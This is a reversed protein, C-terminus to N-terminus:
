RGKLLTWSNDGMVYHDVCTIYLVVLLASVTLTLSPETRNPERNWASPETIKPETINLALSSLKPYLNHM